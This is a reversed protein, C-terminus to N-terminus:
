ASDTPDPALWAAPLPVDLTVDGAIPGHRYVESRDERRVAPHFFGRHRGDLVVALDPCPGHGATFEM